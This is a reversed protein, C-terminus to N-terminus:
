SSSDSPVSRSYVVAELRTAQVSLRNALQGRHVSTTDPDLLWQSILRIERVVDEIRQEDTM